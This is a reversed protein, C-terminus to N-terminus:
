RKLFLKPDERYNYLNSFTSPRTKYTYKKIPNNPENYYINYARTAALEIDRYNYTNSYMSPLRLTKGSRLVSLFKRTLSTSM